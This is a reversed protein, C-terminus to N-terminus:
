IILHWSACDSSKAAEKGGKKAKRNSGARLVMKATERNSRWFVQQTADESWRGASLQSPILDFPRKQLTRFSLILHEPFTFLTQQSSRQYYSERKEKEVIALHELKSYFPRKMGVELVLRTWIGVGDDGIREGTQINLVLHPCELEPIFKLLAAHLPALSRGDIWARLDALRLFGDGM